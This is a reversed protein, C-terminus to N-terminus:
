KPSLQTGSNEQLYVEMETLDFYFYEDPDDSFRFFISSGEEKNDEAEFDITKLYAFVHYIQSILARRDVLAKKYVGVGSYTFQMYEFILVEENESATTFITSISSIVGALDAISHGVPTVSEFVASM